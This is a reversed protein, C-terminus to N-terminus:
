RRFMQPDLVLDVVDGPEVPLAPTLYTGGALLRVEVQISPHAWRVVFQDKANGGVIGVRVRQGSPSLATLTADYFTQNDVALVVELVAATEGPAPKPLACGAVALAAAVVIAPATGYRVRARRSAATVLVARSTTMAGGALPRRHDRTQGRWAGLM